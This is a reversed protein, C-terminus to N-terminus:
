THGKGGFFRFTGEYTRTNALRQRINKDSSHIHMGNLSNCRITREVFDEPM